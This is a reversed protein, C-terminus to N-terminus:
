WAADNANNMAKDNNDKIDKKIEDVLEPALGNVRFDDAQPMPECSVSFAFRDQLTASAPYDSVNFMAGLFERAAEREQDYCGYFANVAHQFEKELKAMTAKYVPYGDATIAGPGDYQWPVTRKRHEVRAASAISEIKDLAEAAVLSKYVKVGAKDSAGSREKAQQTATKDLKRANWQSISLRVLFANQM